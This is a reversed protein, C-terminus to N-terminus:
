AAPALEEFVAVGDRGGRKARYLAHDANALLQEQTQIGGGYRAVGVSTTVALQMGAVHFPKRVAAAIKEALMRCDADVALDDIIVVFEDGSLRAVTDSARVSAQLRRAFEKLVEDGVAHGHTDNITKFLDIDLYALALPAGHRRSREIGQHLAEVFMRRNGIGTLSDVRALRILKEETEKLRTMDHTLGYVGAVSGDPQVDPVYTTELIRLKGGVAQRSEFSVAWGGFANELHLRATAYVDEGLVEAVPRGPLSSPPVGLWSEFTANGFRFKHERDIYSILVPLHDTILRLRRESEERALEAARRESIDRALVYVGDTRGDAKIEPIYDIMYHRGSGTFQQDFHQREGALAAHMRAAVLAYNADGLVERVTRGIMSRPERGVLPLYKANAFEYREERNIYGILAPMNDAIVHARKESARIRAQDQERAAVLEHFAGALEGIEDRAGTQLIAIDAGRQRVASVNLRLQELPALMRRILLWAVMGAALAVLAAAALAQERLAIMPAFAEAIPYRVGIIWDAAKLRKYSYLCPEGDKNDAEISGEFGALARETARNAGARANIHHLERAKDPHDILIGDSTMIFLFGTKGPKLQDIQRLFASEHLAVGGTIVLVVKGNADLLPATVLVVPLGSLRSRFPASVIGDRAAMTADFYQMGSANLGPLATLTALLQGDGGFAALNFFESRLGVRQLYAQIKAPDDRDALPLADVVARLLQKKALLRDDIFAAASTLVARQQDGVVAKMDREALAMSSLSVLLVAALVLVVVVGTLRFKLNSPLLSLLPSRM